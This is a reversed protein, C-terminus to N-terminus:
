ESKVLRGGHIAGDVEIRYFYIGSALGQGDIHFRHEGADLTGRFLVRVERGLPDLLSIRAQREGATTFRISTGDRFPNPASAVGWTHARSEDVGSQGGGLMSVPARWVSQGTSGGVLFDGSSVFHFLLLGSPISAVTNWKGGRYAYVTYVMVSAQLDPEAVTVLPIGNIIAFGLISAEGNFSGIDASWNHGDVSRYIKHDSAAYLTDDWVALHNKWHYGTLMVNARSWSEGQNLSYYLGDTTIAVVRHGSAVLKLVPVHEGNAYPLGAGTAQWSAGGDSSRFLGGGSWGETSGIFAGEGSGLYLYGNASAVTNAATQMVSLGQISDTWNIGGDLSRYISRVGEGAVLAVVTDGSGGMGKTYYPLVRSWEDGNDSSRYIGGPTAALIAADVRNLAVIDQLKLDSSLSTWQIPREDKLQNTFLGSESGMFVTTMASPGNYAALVNGPEESIKQWVGSEFRYVGEPTALWPRGGIMSIDSIMYGGDEGVSLGENTRTWNEGRDTSSYVGHYFLSAVVTDGNAAWASIGATAPLGVGIVKWSVGHDTSVQLVDDGSVGGVHALLATRTALMTNIYLGNVRGSKEWSAGEDSSRYIDTGMSLFIDTGNDTMEWVIGSLGTSTWVKGGDVSRILSSTVLDDILLVNNFGYICHANISDIANWGTDDYRMLGMRAISTIVATGDTAISGIRVGTPGSSQTWQAQVTTGLMMMMAVIQVNKM